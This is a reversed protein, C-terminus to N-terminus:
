QKAQLYAKATQHLAEDVSVPPKWNLTQCTHTMDIQLNGCLRQAIAQKGLLNFTTELLKPPVPLLHAPKGLAQGLRNLLETTSLDEGDSVLFTQNAAAPHDICTTILDILNPLAILSRQNNIKGLPLPIGKNIWNVLSKFNGKVGAGYVLPPRIIIIEMGTEITLQHLAQEAEQKSIAYPDTPLYGKDVITFPKNPQTHEGNVKISSMYIFRRVGANAAQRALNLTGATNTRRFAELPHTTTDHMIHVRAALHIVVDAHTLAATYDTTPLLDGFEARTIPRTQHHQSLAPLLASGVFGTIGTLTIKV